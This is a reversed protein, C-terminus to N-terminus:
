DNVTFAFDHEDNGVKVAIKITRDEGKAFKPRDAFM